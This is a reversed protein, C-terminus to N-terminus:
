KSELEVMHLVIKLLRMTVSCMMIVLIRGLTGDFFLELM